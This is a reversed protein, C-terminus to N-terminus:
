LNIERKPWNLTCNAMSPEFAKRLSEVVQKALYANEVAFNCSGRGALATQEVLDRDCDRGIGFTHIRAKENSKRAYNIINLREYSDVEGDTLLFIRKQKKGCNLAVARELPPLISTGGLDARQNEIM